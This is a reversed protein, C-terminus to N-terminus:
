SGGNGATPLLSGPQKSWGAKWRYNNCTCTMPMFLSENLTADFHHFSGEFWYGLPKDTALLWLGFAVNLSGQYLDPM